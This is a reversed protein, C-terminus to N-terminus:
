ESDLLAHWALLTGRIRRPCPSSKKPATETFCRTSRMRRPAFLCASVGASSGSEGSSKPREQRTCACRRSCPTRQPSASVLLAPAAFKNSLLPCKRLRYVPNATWKAYPERRVVNFNKRILAPHARALQLANHIGMLNLRKSIRRGVGRIEEM